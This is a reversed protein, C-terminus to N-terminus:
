AGDLHAQRIYRLMLDGALRKSRWLSWQSVDGLSEVADGKIASPASADGMLRPAIYVLAEDILSQTFLRGLLGPGAECLVMSVGHESALKRLLIHLDVGDGSNDPVEIIAAGADALADARSSSRDATAIVLPIERASQVLKSNPSIVLQPDVVIRMPTRRAHVGRVTLRPDDARVTGIASLLACSMGRYRHVSRRSYENSIWQSQGSSTAVKGDITQAWKAIVWPLGTNLRKIYPRALAWALSSARSFEVDIGAERLIAAGGGALDSPDAQAIVVRAVRAEILAQTCPPNKGFHSCPELTVWCTAGAPDHGLARCRALADIEAHAKGFCRHHGLGLLTGDTTGIACGVLPNPEVFGAGRLGARAARNLM